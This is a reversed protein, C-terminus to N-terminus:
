TVGIKLLGTIEFSNTSANFSESNEHSHWRAKKLRNHLNIDIRPLPPPIMFDLGKWIPSIASKWASEIPPIVSYQPHIKCLMDVGRGYNIINNSYERISFGKLSWIILCNNCYNKIVKVYPWHTRTLGLQLCVWVQSLSKVSFNMHWAIMCCHMFKWVCLDLKHWKTMALVLPDVM